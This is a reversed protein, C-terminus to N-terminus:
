TSALSEHYEIIKLVKREPSLHEISEFDGDSYRNGNHYIDFVIEASYNKAINILRNKQAHSIESRTDLDILLNYRKLKYDKTLSFRVLGMIGQAVEFIDERIIHDPMCSQIERHDRVRIEPYKPDSLDVMCGDKLIWGAGTSIETIGFDEYISEKKRLCADIELIDGRNLGLKNMLSNNDQTRRIKKKIWEKAKKSFYMFEHPSNKLVLINSKPIVNILNSYDSPPFLFDIKSHIINIKNPYLGMNKNAIEVADIIYRNYEPNGSYHKKLKYNFFNYKELIRISLIPAFFFGAIIKKMNILCLGLTGGMSHGILVINYGSNTLETIREKHEAMIQDWRYNIGHNSGHGKCDCGLISYFQGFPEFAKYIYYNRSLYGHILYILVDSKRNEIFNCIESNIDDSGRFFTWDDEGM